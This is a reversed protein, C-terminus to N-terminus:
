ANRSEMKVLEAAYQQPTIGLKKALAVQTATLTVKRSATSRGAPAVVPASSKKSSRPEEQAGFMEPFSKKLRADIQEFYADSSPDVGQNVLKQHLGLAFSTVEEYGAQGFWQNKAQWNLTKQDLQPAQQVAPQAQKVVPETEQLPTPKFQQAQQHRLKAEMLKEQATLLQDADGSEYAEKYARKAAELESATASQAAKAFSTEASNYMQKLKQNEAMMAQAIRELEAKERALAEAKRREDHRAHTLEKIRKQVGATYNDLEDDTPDAVEKDLPKRGRDQPPTDDVVEIEVDDGIDVSVEEEKESAEGKNGAVEILDDEFGNEDEEPFRFNEGAKFNNM